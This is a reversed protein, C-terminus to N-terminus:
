HTGEPKPTMPGGLITGQREPLKLWLPLFVDGGSGFARNQLAGQDDRIWQEDGETGSRTIGSEGDRPLDAPGGSM